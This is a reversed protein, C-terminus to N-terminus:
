QASATRLVYADADKLSQINTQKLKTRTGSDLTFRLLQKRPPPSTEKASSTYPLTHNESDEPKKTLLTAGLCGFRQELFEQFAPRNRKEQNRFISVRDASM